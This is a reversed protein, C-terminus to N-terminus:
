YHLACVNRTIVQLMKDCKNKEGAIDRERETCICLCVCVCTTKKEQVIQFYITSKLVTGEFKQGM